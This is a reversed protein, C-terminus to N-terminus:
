DIDAENLLLNDYNTGWGNSSVITVASCATTWGTPVTKYEDPALNVVVDPNGPCKLTVTSPQWGTTLQLSVLIRDGGIYTFTGQTKGNRLSASKTPFGAYPGSHYWDGTASTGWDILGVPYQGFLKQNQGAKDNFSVLPGATAPREFVLNDFTAKGSSSALTLNWCFSTWSTVIHATAGGAVVQSVTPTGSGDCSASITTPASGMNLVDFENLRAERVFAVRDDTVIPRKNPHFGCSKTTFAGTPGFLWWKNPGWLAWNGSNDSKPYEAKFEKNAGSVTPLANTNLDDCTATITETQPQSVVPEGLVCIGFLTQSGTGTNLPGAELAGTDINFKYYNATGFNGAWFSTGNPDLNLSFWSDEGGVDYTDIVVGASDYRKVETLDALLLGGDPLIRMAFAQTATGTSFNPLPGSTISVAKVDNGEQGYYITDQDAAIDFFDVRTNIVNQQFVGASDFKLIGNGLNGVYVNGAGDFAVSEPTSYGGGFATQTHPDAPGEFAAVTNASFFTGYFDDDADFACGTTFGGLGSNLTEKLTGDPARVQYQGGAVGLFLDGTNWTTSARAVDPQSSVTSALLACLAAVAVAATV